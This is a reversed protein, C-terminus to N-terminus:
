KKLMKRLKSLAIAAEYGTVNKDKYFFGDKLKLFENSVTFTVAKYTYDSYDIDKINYNNETKGQFLPLTKSVKFLIIAFQFRKIEDVPYFKGDPFNKMWGVRLVDAIYPGEELGIIDFINNNKVPYMEPHEEFFPLLDNLYYILLFAIDKRRLKEQTLIHLLHEKEWAKKLQGQTQPKTKKVPM